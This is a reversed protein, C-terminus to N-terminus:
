THLLPITYLKEALNFLIMKRDVDDLSCTKYKDRNISVKWMQLIDSTCPFILMPKEKKLILGRIEIETNASNIEKIQIVNGDNLLITNDPEKVSLIVGRYRIKTILKENNTLKTKIIEFKKKFNPKSHILSIEHLRRCVQTLPQKGSRLLKKIKGLLSEFPFATFDSISANLYKADDALLILSHM